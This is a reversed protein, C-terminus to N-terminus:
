VPVFAPPNDFVRGEAFEEDDDSESSEPEKGAQAAETIAAAIEHLRQLDEVFEARSSERVKGPGIKPSSTM